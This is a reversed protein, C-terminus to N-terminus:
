VVDFYEGTEKDKFELPVTRTTKAPTEGAAQGQEHEDREVGSATPTRQRGFEEEVLWPDSM